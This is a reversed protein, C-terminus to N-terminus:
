QQILPNPPLKGSDIANAIGYDGDASELIKTLALDYKDAWDSSRSIHEQPLEALKAELSDLADQVTLGSDFPLWSGANLLYESIGAAEIDGSGTLECFDSFEQSYERGLAVRVGAGYRDDWFKLYYGETLFRNITPHTSLKEERAKSAALLSANMQKREELSM